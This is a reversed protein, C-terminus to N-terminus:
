WWDTDFDIAPVDSVTSSQGTQLDKIADELTTGDDMKVDDANPTPVYLGDDKTEIANDEEESIEVNGQPVFLGDEKEVIANGTEQSVDVNEGDKVRMQRRKTTGDEATWKFTVVNEKDDKEIDEVECNRGKIAGLGIISEDTYGQSLVYAADGTMAM